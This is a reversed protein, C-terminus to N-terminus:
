VDELAEEDLGFYHGFEHLVTLRVEECIMEEVSRGEENAVDEAHAEINKQYLVIRNPGTNTGFFSQETRPTGEFVGMLLDNPDRGEPAHDEVVVAVNQIHKRFKRPLSDMAERVLELFPERRMVVKREDDGSLSFGQILGDRMQQV